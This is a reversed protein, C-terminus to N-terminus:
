VLLDKNKRLYDAGIRLEPSKLKEPGFLSWFLQQLKEDEDTTTWTDNLREDMEITVARIEEATNEILELNLKTFIENTDRGGFELNMIESFSM